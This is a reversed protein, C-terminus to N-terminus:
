KLLEALAGQIITGNANPAALKIYIYPSSGEHPISVIWTAVTREHYNDASTRWISNNPSHLRDDAFNKFDSLSFNDKKEDLLENIRTFRIHSSPYKKENYALLNNDLYHNTHTLIGKDKLIFSFKHNPAIEVYAINKKDALMYFEPHANSFLIDKDNYIQQVTSYQSLIKAMIGKDEGHKESRPLVSANLSTIVLNKENIGAKLQKKNKKNMAFLGLYSFKDKPHRAEIFENSPIFDRNKTILIDGNSNITAWGTCAFCKFGLSSTLLLIFLKKKM